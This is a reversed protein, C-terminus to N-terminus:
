SENGGYIRRDPRGQGFGQDPHAKSFSVPLWRVVRGARDLRHLSELEFKDVLKLTCRCNYGLPPTFREWIPDDQSAMLKHAAAHNERCDSDLTAIFEFAGIVERVAPEMAERFRGASYATVVNTRYVTEGYARTFGESGGLEAIVESAEPISKGERLASAIFDRIAKTVQLDASKALAFAHRQSYLRSVEAAGRALRPERRIMDEVAEEFPINPVIPTDDEAFKVAEVNRKKKADFELLMRRRGMLDSLAMTNGILEALELMANDADRSNGSARAKLLRNLDSTFQPTNRELLRSLEEHASLVQKM